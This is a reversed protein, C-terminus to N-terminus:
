FTASWVESFGSEEGCANRAVIKYWYTMGAEVDTDHYARVGHTTSILAFGDTASTASRWVDYDLDPTDVHGWKVCIEGAPTTDCARVDVPTNAPPCGGAVTASWVESFGSEEGCSNRAMIKYWYTTGSVIDTDHYARVGHTTGILVFGDSASTTSRWVDYDLHPTDVYGWKVCIEGSPTTDCARVDTPIDPEPCGGGAIPGGEYAWRAGGRFLAVSNPAPDIAGGFQAHYYVRATGTPYAYAFLDGDGWLAVATAGPALGCMAAPGGWSAETTIAEGLAISTEFPHHVVATATGSGNTYATAGAWAPVAGLFFWTAELVVIGKGAVLFDGFPIAEPPSGGTIHVVLLDYSSLDPLSSVRLDCADAVLGEDGLWMLVQEEHFPTWGPTGYYVYIAIAEPVNPEVHIIQTAVASKGSDDVVQLTAEYDGPEEYIWDFAAECSTEGDGLTWHYEVISGDPDFSGTGDFSVVLPANGSIPDASLSAVPPPFLLDDIMSCAVSLEAILMNADSDDICRGGKQSCRLSDVQPIAGSCIQEAAGGLKERASPINGRELFDQAKLLKGIASEVKAEVGPPCGDPITVAFLADLVDDITLHTIEMPGSTSEFARPGLLATCGAILGLLSFLALGAAWRRRM